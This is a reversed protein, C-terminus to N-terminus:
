VTEHTITAVAEEAASKKVPRYGQLAFYGHDTRTSSKKNEIIVQPVINVYRDGIARLPKNVHTEINNILTALAEGIKAGTKYTRNQIGVYFDTCLALFLGMCDRVELNKQRARDRQQLLLQFKHDDLEKLLYRIRLDTNDTPQAPNPLVNMVTEQVHLVAQYLKRITRQESSKITNPIIRVLELYQPLGQPCAAGQPQAAVGIKHLREFYHPNHIVGKIREGTSYSFPTDCETCYMQDCGSVKSISMGCAPCPRSDKVITKITEVLAPDCTHTDDPKPERCDPCFQKQCTGCKYTTSLFGRCGADPCAAVFARRKIEKPDESSGPWRGTRMFYQQRDRQTELEEIAKKLEMLKYASAEYEKAVERKQLEIEVAPQTAPLMSRERDFLLTARHRKLEGERWSRTLHTDLFERNWPHRCNMCHPDTPTSILFSRVCRGCAEYSCNPCPVPKRTTTTYADCCVTCSM